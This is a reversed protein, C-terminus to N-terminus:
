WKIVWKIGITTKGPRLDVSEWTGKHEYAEIEEQMAILWQVKVDSDIEENYNKSENIERMVNIEEVLRKPPIGKNVRQSVLLGPQNVQVIARDEIVREDPTQALTENLTENNIEEQASDYANLTNDFSLGGEDDSSEEQISASDVQIETEQNDKGTADLDISIENAAM